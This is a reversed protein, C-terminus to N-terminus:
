KVVKWLGWAVCEACHSPAYFNTIDRMRKGGKVGYTKGDQTEIWDWFEFGERHRYRTIEQQNHSM